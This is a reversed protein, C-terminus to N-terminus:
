GAFPRAAAGRCAADALEEDGARGGRVETISCATVAPLNIIRGTVAGGSAATM